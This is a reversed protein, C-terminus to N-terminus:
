ENFAGINWEQRHEILQEILAKIQNRSYGAGMAAIVAQIEHKYFGVARDGLSIPPPMTGEQIDLYLSSKSRGTCRIVEPRRLIELYTKKKNLLDMIIVM